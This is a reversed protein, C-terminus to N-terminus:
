KLDSIGPEGLCICYPRENSHNSLSAAGPHLSDTFSYIFSRLIICLKVM